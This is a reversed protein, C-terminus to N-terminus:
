HTVRNKKEYSSPDFGDDGFTKWISKSRSEVDADRVLYSVTGRGLDTEVEAMFKTGEITGLCHKDFKTTVKGAMDEELFYEDEKKDRLMLCAIEFLKGAKSENIRVSSTMLCHILMRM